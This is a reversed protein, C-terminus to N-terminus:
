DRDPGPSLDVWGVEAGDDGDILVRVRRLDEPCHDFRTPEVLAFISALADASAAANREAHVVVTVFRQDVAPSLTRADIVHGMREGDNGRIWQHRDGSTAVAAHELVLVRRGAGPGRDMRVSWGDSGPPAAGVVIDGGVDVLSRPLGTAVLSDLAADAAMGKGIGGFDLHVGDKLIRVRRESADFEIASWGSVAAATARERASPPTGRSRADRWLRTTAGIAPDFANGSWRRWRDSEILALHLDDGVEQWVGQGRVIREVESSPRYDSLAAEIDTMVEFARRTADRAQEADEAYTVIMAECGMVIRRDVVRVSQGPTACATILPLIGFLAIRSIRRM